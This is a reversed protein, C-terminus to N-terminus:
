AEIWKHLYIVNDPELSDSPHYLDDISVKFRSETTPLMAQYRGVPGTVRTRKQTSNDFWEPCRVILSPINEKVSPIMTPGLNGTQTPILEVIRVDAIWMMDQSRGLTPTNVPNRFASVLDLNTLYLDLQPRFHVHRKLIGQGERHAKLNGKDDLVLRDTKELEIDTSRCHFEYGIRTDRHSIAKGACASILGLMTSYPPCPLTLQTGSITLPHKFFATLGEMHVHVAQIHDAM